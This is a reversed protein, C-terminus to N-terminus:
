FVLRTRRAPVRTAQHLLTYTSNINATGHSTLNARQTGARAEASVRLQRSVPDVRQSVAVAGPGRLQARKPISTVALNPVEKRELNVTTNQSLDERLTTLHVVQNDMTIKMAPSAQQLKLGRQHVTELYNFLLVCPRVIGAYLPIKTGNKKMVYAARSINYVMKTLFNQFIHNTTHTDFASSESFINQSRFLHFGM